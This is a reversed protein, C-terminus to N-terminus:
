SREHRIDNRGHAPTDQPFRDRETWGSLIVTAPAGGLERCENAFHAQDVYGADHAARALDDTRAAELAEYLRFV